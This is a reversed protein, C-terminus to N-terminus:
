RLALQVRIAHEIQEIESSSLRGAYGTLRLKSVTMIQSAMAKSQKGKLNVLTEGPYVKKTNTTLPVVQIRQLYQIASPNSVIVAPRKKKIEEGISPDFNIWWVDGRKM